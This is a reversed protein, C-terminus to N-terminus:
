YTGGEGESSLMSLPLPSPLNYSGCHRRIWCFLFMNWLTKIRSVSVIFSFFFMKIVVLKLSSYITLNLFTQLKLTSIIGLTIKIEQYILGKNEFVNLIRFVIFIM